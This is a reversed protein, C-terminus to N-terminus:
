GKEVTKWDEMCCLMLIAWTDPGVGPIFYVFKLKRVALLTYSLRDENPSVNIGVHDARTRDLWVQEYIHVEYTVKLNVM